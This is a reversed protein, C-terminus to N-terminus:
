LDEEKLQLINQIGSLDLEPANSVDRTETVEEVIDQPNTDPSWPGPHFTTWVTDEHIYLVRRTGPKTIGIHGAKLHQVGGVEDWVAVHGKTVVFPHETKHIRSIVLADKPMFITRIYMGPTFRHELPFDILWEKPCSKMHKELSDVKLNAISQNELANM